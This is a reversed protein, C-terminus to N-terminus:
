TYSLDALDFSRTVTSAQGVVPLLLASLAYIVSKM